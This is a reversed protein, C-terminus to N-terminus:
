FFHLHVHVLFFGVCTCLFFVLARAIIFFRFISLYNHVFSVYLPIMEPTADTEFADLAFELDIKDYGCCGALISCISKAWDLPVISKIKSIAEGNELTTEAQIGYNKLLIGHSNILVNTEDKSFIKTTVSDILNKFALEYAENEKKGELQMLKFRQMKPSMKKVQSQINTAMELGGYNCNDAAFLQKTQSHISVGSDFADLKKNVPALNDSSALFSQDSLDDYGRKKNNIEINNNNM